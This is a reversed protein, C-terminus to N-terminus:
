RSVVVVPLGADGANDYGLRSLKDDKFNEERAIVVLARAGAARAAAAKFRLEGARAFRGHPNDGDPTGSLALAVGDKAVSDEYDDHGLETATVGYGVFVVPASEVKANASFGLPMWDEGVRLVRPAPEADDGRGTLVMGNNKGLEVAAVYPFTQLFTRERSGAGEPDGGPELGLRKFEAAVYAAAEEAGRTGTRRGELRDSALHAVHARLREVDVGAREPAAQRAVVSPAVLLAALVLRPFTKKYLM